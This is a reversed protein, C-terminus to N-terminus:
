VAFHHILKQFSIKILRAHLKKCSHNQYSWRLSLDVRRVILTSVCVGHNFNVFSRTTMLINLKDLLSKNHMVHLTKLLFKALVWIKGENLMMSCFSYFWALYSWFIISCNFRLWFSFTVYHSSFLIRLVVSFISSDLFFFEDRKELTLKCIFSRM